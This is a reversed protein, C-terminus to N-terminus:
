LYIQAVSKRQKKHNTFTLIKFITLFKFSQFSIHHMM